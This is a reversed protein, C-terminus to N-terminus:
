QDERGSVLFPINAHAANGHDDYAYAFLRYKGPESVTMATTALTTESLLGDLSAIPEEFDGGVETSDSEPKVEWHYRLVDGEHEFVNLEAAYTEGATLVVSQRASKGGLNLSNVRPSRNAPLAGTWLNHMMDVTETSEGGETFMGFWTPTREQKQGWLFVYSGILQGEFRALIDQYGRKFVDAKESGTTEVPIGWATKEMEWYGIAGWETVMFPDDFGADAIRKPRAFLSGCLQFSIFEFRPARTRIDAIVDEYFGSLTTTTPHNPDLENIMRAVDTVADYVKSNTYSHNLENGIIWFLLAPHDRYRIVQERFAALQAAVADEDDYDFGWREAEMPLCLAVTVGRAHASDLLEQPDQYRDDTTWNRTSNGGHAVFNEIDDIAMGAGRIEYPEGARLLQFGSATQVIEVKM